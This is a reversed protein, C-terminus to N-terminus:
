QDSTEAGGVTVQGDFGKFAEFNPYETSVNINALAGNDKVVHLNMKLLRALTAAPNEAESM